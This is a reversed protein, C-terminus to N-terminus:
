QRREYQQSYASQSQRERLEAEFRRRMEEYVKSEHALYRAEEVKDEVIAEKIKKGLEHESEKTYVIFDACANANNLLYEIWPRM